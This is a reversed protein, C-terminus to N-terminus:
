SGICLYTFGLQASSQGTLLAATTVTQVAIAAASAGFDAILCVPINQRPTAVGASNTWTITCNITTAGQVVTGYVSNGVVTSGAGCASIIPNGGFAGFPATPNGGPNSVGAGTQTMAASASMLLALSAYLIPRM